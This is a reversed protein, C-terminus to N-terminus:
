EQIMQKVQRAFRKGEETSLVGSLLKRLAEGDGSRAASEVAGADLMQGLRKGEPSDALRRLDEGKGRRQLEQGLQELNQM